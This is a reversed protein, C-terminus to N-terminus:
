TDGFRRKALSILGTQREECPMHKLAGSLKPPGGSFKSLNIIIKRKSPVWFRTVDCYEIHPRVLVSYFSIIIM